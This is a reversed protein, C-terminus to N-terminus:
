PRFPFRALSTYEAGSSALDSRYLVLESVSAAALDIAGFTEAFPRADVASSARAVTLHPRYPRAEEPLGLEVVREDVAHFLRALDEHPDDLELVVVRARGVEPFGTARAVTLRPPAAFTLPEVADVLAPVLALDIAGLFRVTVHMKTPSVFRAHRGLPAREEAAHVAEVVRRITTVDLNLAFFARASDM